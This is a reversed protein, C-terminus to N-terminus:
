KSSPCLFLCTLFVSTNRLTGPHGQILIVQPVQESQLNKGVCPGVGLLFRQFHAGGLSNQHRTASQVGSFQPFPLGNTTTSFTNSPGLVSGRGLPEDRGTGKRGRAPPTDLGLGEAYAVTVHLKFLGSCTYSKAVVLWYEWLVVTEEGGYARLVM